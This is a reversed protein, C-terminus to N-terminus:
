ESSGDLNVGLPIQNDKKIVM